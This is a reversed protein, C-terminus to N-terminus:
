RVVFSVSFFNNQKIRRASFSVNVKRWNNRRERVAMSIANDKILAM